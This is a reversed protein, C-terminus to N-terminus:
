EEKGGLQSLHSIPSKVMLAGMTVTLQGESMAECSVDSRRTNDDKSAPVEDLAFIQEPSVGRM